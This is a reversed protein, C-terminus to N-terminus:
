TIRESLFEQCWCLIDEHQGAEMFQVKLIEDEMKETLERLFRCTEELRRLFQKRDNQENALRVQECLVLYEVQPLNWQSAIQRAIALEREALEVQGETRAVKGALFHGAAQYRSIDSSKELLLSIVRRAHAFRKSESLWLALYFLYNLFDLPHPQLNWLHRAERLLRRAKDMRRQQIEYYSLYLKALFLVEQQGSQEARQHAETLFERARLLGHVLLHLHGLHLQIEDLENFFRQRFCIEMGKELMRRARGYRAQEKFLMGLQIYTHVLLLPRHQVYGKEIMQNLLSIALQWKGLRPYIDAFYFVLQIYIQPDYVKRLLRRLEYCSHLAKRYEKQRIEAQIQDRLFTCQYLSAHRDQRVADRMRSFLATLEAADSDLFAKLKPYLSYIKAAAAAETYHDLALRYNKLAYDSHGQNAEIDGLLEFCYGRSEPDCFKKVQIERLIYRAELFADMAILAQAMKLNVKLWRKAEAPPQKSKGRVFLNRLERLIEFANEYAGIQLYLNGLQELIDKFDPITGTKLHSMRVLFYLREAAEAYRGQAQLAEAEERSTQIAAPIEELEYLLHSIKYKPLTHATQQLEYFLLIEKKIQDIPVAHRLWDKWLGFSIAFGTTGNRTIKRIFGAEIWRRILSIPLQVQGLLAELDQQLIPDDLHALLGLLHAAATEQVALAGRFLTEWNGNIRINQLKRVNLFEGESEEILQRYVGELLFRIRLPHGETKLYCHNTILRANMPSTSFYDQVAQEAEQVSLRSLRIEHDYKVQHSFTGEPDYTFIIRLPLFSVNELFFQIAEFQRRDARHINEFIFLPTTTRCLYFLFQLFLDEMWTKRDSSVPLQEAIIGRIYKRSGSPFNKLFDEFQPSNQRILEGLIITPFDNVPPLYAEYDQHYMLPVDPPLIAILEDILDRKGSGTKGEVGIKFPRDDSSRTVAALLNKLNQSQSWHMNRKREMRKM